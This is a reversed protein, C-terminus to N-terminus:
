AREGGRGPSPSRVPVGHLDPLPGGDRGCSSRGTGSDFRAARLRAGAWTMFAGACLRPPSTNPDAYRASERGTDEVPTREGTAARPSTLLRLPDHKPLTGGAAEGATDRWPPFRRAATECAPTCPETRYVVTREQEQGAPPRLPDHEPLTGEVARSGGRQARRPPGPADRGNSARSRPPAPRNGSGSPPGREPHPRQDERPMTQVRAPERATDGTLHLQPNDDTSDPRSRGGNTTQRSVM